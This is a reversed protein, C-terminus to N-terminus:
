AEAAFSQAPADGVVLADSEDLARVDNAALQAEGLGPHTRRIGTEIERGLLEEHEVPQATGPEDDVAASVVDSLVCMPAAGGRRLGSDQLRPGSARCASGIRNTSKATRAQRSSRYTWTMACEVGAPAIRCGM